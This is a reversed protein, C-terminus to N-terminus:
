SEKRYDVIRSKAFTEPHWPRRNVDYAGRYRNKAAFSMAEFPCDFIAYLMSPRAGPFPPDICGTIPVDYFM